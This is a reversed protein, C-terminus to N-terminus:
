INHKNVRCVRLKLYFLLYEKNWKEVDAAPDLLLLLCFRTISEQLANFSEM